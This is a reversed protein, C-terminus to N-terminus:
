DSSKSLLPGVPGGVRLHVNQCDLDAKCTCARLLGREVADDGSIRTRRTVAPEDLDEAAVVRPGIGRRDLQVHLLDVCPDGLACLEALGDRLKERDGLVRLRRSGGLLGCERLLGLRLGLSLRLGGGLRRNGYLRRGLSNDLFGRLGLSNDLFDRPAADLVASATASADSSAVSSAASYGHGACRVDVGQDLIHDRREHLMGLVDLDVLADRLLGGRVVHRDVRVVGPLHDAPLTTDDLRDPHENPGCSRDVTGVGRDFDDASGM